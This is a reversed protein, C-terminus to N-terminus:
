ELPLSNVRGEDRLFGCERALWTALSTALRFTSLMHSEDLAPFKEIAAHVQLLIMLSTEGRGVNGM